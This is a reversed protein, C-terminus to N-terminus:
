FHHTQFKSTMHASSTSFEQSIWTSGFSTESLARFTSKGSLSAMLVCWSWNCIQNQTWIETTITSHQTNLKRYKTHIWLLKPRVLLFLQFMKRHKKVSLTQVSRRSCNWTHNQFRWKLFRALYHLNNIFYREFLECSNILLICYTHCSSKHKMM